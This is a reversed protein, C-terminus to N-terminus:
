RNNDRRVRCREATIIARVEEVAQSLNQNVVAYDYEKLSAIEEKAKALRKEIDKEDDTKRKKLRAALTELSPPLLFILCSFGKYREKIKLAGKVDIDLIIDRGSRLAEELFKRPTGYHHGHVEAWEAFEGKGIKKDFEEKSIFFYDKGDEEGLRPRRSTASISYSLEPSEKLIRRCITTKGGGSPSSIVFIIGKRKM